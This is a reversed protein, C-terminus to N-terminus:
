VLLIKKKKISLFIYCVPLLSPDGSPSATNLLARLLHPPLLAPGKAKMIGRKGGNGGEADDIM